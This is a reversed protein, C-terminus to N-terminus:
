EFLHYFMIDAKEWQLVYCHDAKSKPISYNHAAAEAYGFKRIIALHDSFNDGDNLIIVHHKPLVLEPSCIFYDIMSYRNIADNHFNYNVGSNCDINCWSLNNTSCFDYVMGHEISPSYKTVNLNGGFVFKCGIYRDLIGQMNGIVAEYEVARDKSGDDYPM